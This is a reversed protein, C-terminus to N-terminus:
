PHAPSSRVASPGTRTAISRTGTSDTLGATSGLADYDYYHVGASDSLSMPNLGMAYARTTQGQGDFEALVNM